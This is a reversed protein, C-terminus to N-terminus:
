ILVRGGEREDHRKTDKERCPTDRKEEHSVDTRLKCVELILDFNENKLTQNKELAMAQM